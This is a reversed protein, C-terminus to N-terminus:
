FGAPYQGFYRTELLKHILTLDFFRLFITNQAIFYQTKEVERELWDVTIVHLQVITENGDSPDTLIVELPENCYEVDAPYENNTTILRLTKVNYRPCYKITRIEFLEKDLLSDFDEADTRLKMFSQIYAFADISTKKTNADAIIANIKELVLAKTYKSLIITQDIYWCTENTNDLGNQYWDLSVVRLTFQLWSRVSINNVWVEIEQSFHTENEEIHTLNDIRVLKINLTSM